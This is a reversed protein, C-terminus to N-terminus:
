YWILMGKTQVQCKADLLLTAMVAKGRSGVDSMVRSRVNTLSRGSAMTTRNQFGRSM